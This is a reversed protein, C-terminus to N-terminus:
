PSRNAVWMLVCAGILAALALVVCVGEISLFCPRRRRKM